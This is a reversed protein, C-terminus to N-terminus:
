IQPAPGVDGALECTGATCRVLAAQTRTNSELLLATPSEWQVVGFYGRVGYTLRTRGRDDVVVVVGPGIGDALLDVAAARKGDPSFSEARLSCSRWLARKPKSIRSVVTCGKDYPDGTFVAMRDTALDALYGSRSVLKRVLGSSMTWTTTDRQSGVIVQRADLDLVSVVGPYSKTASVAGDTTSWVVLRTATFGRRPQAQAVLSGDTSLQPSDGKRSPTVVTTRVGAPSIRLVPGVGRDDRAHVVYDAGARGLYAPQTSGTDVRVAGDVLVRGVLHPVAPDAGRPLAAPKIKVPTTAREAAQAGGPSLVLVAAAALAAV